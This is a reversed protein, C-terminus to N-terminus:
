VIQQLWKKELLRKYAINIQRKSFQKKRDNWSYIHKIVEDLNRTHNNKVVWHVTSLLELGFSSEFGDVLDSVKEFHKKTSGKDSLRKKVEDIIGPKLEIQKKPDDGGDGYGLIFYGEIANLVHRLNEAYPGYYAKNYKLNLPEGSEQLFYMLKHIELLTIFPDLM